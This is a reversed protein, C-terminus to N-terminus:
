QPPRLNVEVLLESAVAVNNQKAPQYLWSRAARLLMSDYTPHVSQVIEANAVRGDVGISVQV